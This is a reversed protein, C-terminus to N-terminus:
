QLHPIREVLYYTGGSALSSEIPEMWNEYVTRFERVHRQPYVHALAVGSEPDRHLSHLSDGTTLGYCTRTRHLMLIPQTYALAQLPNSIPRRPHPQPHCLRM